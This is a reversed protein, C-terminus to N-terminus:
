IGDESEKKERREVEWALQRVQDSFRELKAPDIRELTARIKLHSLFLGLVANLSLLMLKESATFTPRASRAAPVIVKTNKRIGFM